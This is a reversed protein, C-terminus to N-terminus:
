GRRAITRVSDAGLGVVATPHLTTTLVGEKALVEM